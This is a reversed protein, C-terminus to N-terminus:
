RATWIRVTTVAKALAYRLIRAIRVFSASGLANEICFARAILSADPIFALIRARSSTALISLTVNDVM